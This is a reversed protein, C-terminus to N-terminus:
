CRRPDAATTVAPDCMRILGGGFVNVRRTRSDAAAGSITVQSLQTGPNLLGTPLFTVSRVADTYSLTLGLWDTSAYSQLTEGPTVRTVEWGTGDARMTFRVAANRRVAEARAHNLGDLISQAAGQVKRNTLMQSAGPAALTAGIALIAVVTLLEILTVGRHLCKLM